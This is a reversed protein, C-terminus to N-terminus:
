SSVGYSEDMDYLLFVRLIGATGATAAGATNDTAVLDWYHRNAASLRTGLFSTLETFRTFTQAGSNGNGISSLLTITSTGDTLELKIDSTPASPHTDINEVAMWGDCMRALSPIKALNMVDDAVTMKAGIDGNYADIMLATPGVTTKKMPRFYEPANYTAM